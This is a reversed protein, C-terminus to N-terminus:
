DSEIEIGLQAAIVELEKNMSKIESEAEAALTLAAGMANYTIVPDKLAQEKLKEQLSEIEDKAAQLEVKVDERIEGTALDLFIVDTGIAAGAVASFLAKQNRPISVVSIEHLQAEYVHQVGQIVEDKTVRYGVSFAKLIGEKVLQIVQKASSSIFARVFLGMDSFTAEVVKGIPNNWDHMLLLIPNAMFDGLSKELCDAHMDINARDAGATSAWGQILLGDKPLAAQVTAPLQSLDAKEIEVVDTMKMHFTFTRSPITMAELVKRKLSRGLGRKLMPNDPKM